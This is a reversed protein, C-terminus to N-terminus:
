NIQYPEDQTGKGTYLNTDKDLYLTPHIYKKSSIYSAGAGAGYIIGGNPHYTGTNCYPCYDVSFPTLLWSDSYLDGFYSQCLTDSGYGSNSVVKNCANFDAAYGYDSPYALAVKGIWDTTRVVSDYSSGVVTSGREKLYLEHSYISGSNTGGTNWKVNAIKNKTQENKLGSSTFDCEITVNKAGNYCIGSNRNWYLSNNVTINNGNTDLDENSEYGPNLLKMLDAGAYDGSAGWQNIGRGSNVAADSTDYSIQGIDNIRVIKVLKISNDNSDKIDFVGIIRWLECTNNTQNSYDDCNFYIYNNPDTGYYRINGGDIDTDMTGLRDNMLGVDNAIHYTVSTTDSGNVVETKNANNYINSIYTVLNKNILEAPMVQKPILVMNEELVVTEETSVSTGLVINLQKNTNNRIQIILSITDLGNITGTTDSDTGFDIDNSEDLYWASYHMINNTQNVINLTIEKTEKSDLSVNITQLIEDSYTLNSSISIPNDIVATAEFMAFTSGFALGILGLSIVTLLYLTKLPVRKDM